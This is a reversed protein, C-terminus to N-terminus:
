RLVVVLSKFGCFLNFGCFLSIVESVIGTSRRKEKPKRRATSKTRPHMPPTSSSEDKSADTSKSRPHTPPSNSSEDKSRGTTTVRHATPPSASPSSDSPKQKTYSSSTSTSSPGSSPLHSSSSSPSPTSSTSSKATSYYFLVKHFCSPTFFLKCVDPAFTSECNASKFLSERLEVKMKQEVVDAMKIKETTPPWTSQQQALLTNLIRSTPRASPRYSSMTVPKDDDVKTKSSSTESKTTTPPSSSGDKASSKTAPTGDKASPQKPKDQQRENGPSESGAPAESKSIEMEDHKTIQELVDQPVPQTSKRQQRLKRARNRRSFLLFSFFYFLFDLIM